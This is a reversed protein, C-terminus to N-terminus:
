SLVAFEVLFISEQFSGLSILSVLLMWIGSMGWWYTSNVSAHFVYLYTMFINMLHLEQFNSELAFAHSQLLGKVKGSCLSPHM